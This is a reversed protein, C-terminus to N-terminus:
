NGGASAVPMKPGKVEHLAARTANHRGDLEDIMGQCLLMIGCALRGSNATMPLVGESEEATCERALLHLLAAARDNTNETKAVANGVENLAAESVLVMGPPKAKM